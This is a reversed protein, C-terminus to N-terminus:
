ITQLLCPQQYNSSTTVPPIAQKAKPQAHTPLEKEQLIFSPAQKSRRNGVKVVLERFSSGMFESLSHRHWLHPRSKGMVAVCHKLQPMLSGKLGSPAFRLFIRFMIM